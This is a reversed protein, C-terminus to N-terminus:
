RVRKWKGFFNRKFHSLCRRAGDHGYLAAQRYYDVAQELDQPIQEGKEYLRGLEYYADKNKEKKAAELYLEAAKEENKECGYGNQYLFALPLSDKLGGKERCEELLLFARNYDQLVEEGEFYLYGLREKCAENGLATGREYYEVAKDWDAGAMGEMKGEYMQGLLLCAENQDEWHNDESVYETLLKEAKKLDRNEGPALCFRALALGAERKGCAYARSYWYYAKEEDQFSEESYLQGLRLLAERNEHRAAEEFCSAAQSLDREIGLGNMYLEGLYFPATEDGQCAAAYFYAFAAEFDQCEVTHLGMQLLGWADGSAAAKEAWYLGSEENKATYTGSFCCIGARRMAKVIGGEGAKEYWYFCRGAWSESKPLIEYVDEYFFAEAIQYASFADGREAAEAVLEFSESLSYRSLRQMRDDYQGARMAGLVCRVSGAQAGALYYEYAKKDNFGVSGDGWSCCHGLFFLAEADGKKAAEELYELGQPFLAENCQKWILDVGKECLESMLEAM